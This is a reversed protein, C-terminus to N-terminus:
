GTHASATPCPSSTPVSPATMLATAMTLTAATRNPTESRARMRGRVTGTTRGSSTPAPTTRHGLVQSVRGDPGPGQGRRTGSGGRAQGPQGKRTPERARSGLSNSAGPCAAGPRRAARGDRSGARCRRRQRSRARGRGRVVEDGPHGRLLNDTGATRCEGGIALQRRQDSRADRVHDDVPCLASVALPLSPTRRPWTGCRTRSPATVAARASPAGRTMTRILASRGSRAIARRIARASRRSPTGISSDIPGAVNTAPSAVATIRAIVPPGARGASRPRGGDIRVPTARRREWTISLLASVKARIASAARPTASREASALAEPATRSGPTTSSGSLLM